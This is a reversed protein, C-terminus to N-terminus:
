LTTLAATRFWGSAFKFAAYRETDTEVLVIDGVEGENEAPAQTMIQHVHSDSFLEDFSEQIKSTYDNLGNEIDKPSPPALPSKQVKSM